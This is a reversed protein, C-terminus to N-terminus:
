RNQSFMNIFLKCKVLFIIQNCNIHKKIYKFEEKTLQNNDKALLHTFINIQSDIKPDFKNLLYMNERTPPTVYILHEIPTRWTNNDYKNIKITDIFSKNKSLFKYLEEITPADEYEYYWNNAKGNWVYFYYKYIWQFGTIFSQIIQVNNERKIHRLMWNFGEVEVLKSSFESVSLKKKYEGSMNDFDSQESYYERVIKNKIDEVHSYKTKPRLYLEFKKVNEKIPNFGNTLKLIMKGNETNMDNEYETKDKANEIQAWLNGLEKVKACLQPFSLESKPDIISVVYKFNKWYYDMYNFYLRDNENKRLINLLAILSSSNIKDNQLITTHSQALYDCYGKLLFMFDNKVSISRIKPIFDNGFMTFIFAVDNIILEEKNKVDHSGLLGSQPTNSNVIIWQVLMDKLKSIDIVDIKEVERLILIQKNHLILTLITMDSDPSYIMCTNNNNESYIHDVIKKEGEGFETTDSIIIKKINTCLKKIQETFITSRLEKAMLKMFYTGPSIINKSWELKLEEYDYQLKDSQKIRESWKNYIERKTKSIITGMWRRKKQEISKSAMPVGDFSIYLLQLKRVQINNRLLSIIKETIKTIIINDINASIKERLYITDKTLWDIPIILDTQPKNSVFLKITNNVSHIVHTSITHIISNFDIYMHSINHKEKSELTTASSVISHTIISKFFQEIGM